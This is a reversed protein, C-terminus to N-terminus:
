SPHGPTMGKVQQFTLQHRQGFHNAEIPELLHGTHDGLDIRDVIKGLFWSNVETLVPLDHRHEWACAGFKDTHDGTQEGFLAALPSNAVDLFHVALSGAREALSFTRNSHSICVLFRAPDISVQTHFGVLCGAREGDAATTVIVMPYDLHGVLENFPALDAM